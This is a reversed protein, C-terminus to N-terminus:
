AKDIDAEMSPMYVKCCAKGSKKAEYLAIDSEHILTDMSKELGNTRQSIGASVSLAKMFKVGSYYSLLNKMFINVKNEVESASRLGTLVVMFEDGGMRAIFGDTFERQMMEATAALARDGAQHGYTDNVLKFNDLDFYICTINEEDKNNEVYEQLYWRTALGTLYDQQAMELIRKQYQSKDISETRYSNKWLLIISLYENINELAQEGEYIREKDPIGAFDVRFIKDYPGSANVLERINKLASPKYIAIAKSSNLSNTIKDSEATGPIISIIEDSMALFKQAYSAALSHSSIGPIFSTELDPFIKTLADVLYAGTSYLMSDGIVPFFIKQARRLGSEIGLLQERIIKDRKDADRTMPFLLRIIKADPIHALIVKEAIGQNNDHSRPVIIVGSDKAANLAQLTILDPNGPGVGAIILRM